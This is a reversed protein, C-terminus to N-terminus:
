YRIHKGKVRNWISKKLYQGMHELVWFNWVFLTMLKWKLEQDAQQTAYDGLSCGWPQRPDRTQSNHSLNEFDGIKTRCVLSICWFIKWTMIIVSKFSFNNQVMKTLFWWKQLFCFNWCKNKKLFFCFDHFIQLFWSIQLQKTCGKQFSLWILVM